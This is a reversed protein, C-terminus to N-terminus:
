SSEPPREIGHASEFRRLVSETHRLSARLQTSVAEAHGADLLDLIQDLELRLNEIRGNLVNRARVRALEDDVIPGIRAPEAM